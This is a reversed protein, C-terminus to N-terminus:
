PQHLITNLLIFHISVATCVLLCHGTGKVFNDSAREPASPQCHCYILAEKGKCRELVSFCYLVLLLLGINQYLLMHVCQGMLVIVHSLISNPISCMVIWLVRVEKWHVAALCFHPVSLLLFAVSTLIEVKQYKKYMFFFFQRIKM